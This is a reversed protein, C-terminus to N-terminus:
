CIDQVNDNFEKIEGDRGTYYVNVEYRSLLKQCKVCPRAMAMGLKNIRMVLITIDKFRQFAKMRELKNILVEEAHETWKGVQGEVRRNHATAIITGTKSLAIASVKARRVNTYRAAKTGAKIHTTEIM